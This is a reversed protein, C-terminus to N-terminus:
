VAFRSNPSVKVGRVRRAPRDDPRARRPPSAAAVAPVDAHEEAVIERPGGLAAAGPHRRQAVLLLEVALHAREDEVHHVEVLAGRALRRQEGEVVGARQEVLEAVAQVPQQGVHGIRHDGAGAHQLIEDLQGRLEVLVPEVPRLDELAERAVVLGALRHRLRQHVPQDGRAGEILAEEGGFIEARGIHIEVEMEAAGLVRVCRDLRLRALAHLHRVLDHHPVARRVERCM